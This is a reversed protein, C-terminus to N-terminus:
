IGDVTSRYPGGGSQPLYPAALTRIRDLRLVINDLCFEIDDRTQPLL